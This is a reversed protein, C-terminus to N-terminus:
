LVDLLMGQTPLGNPAIVLSSVGDEIDSLIYEAGHAICTLTLCGPCLVISLSTDSLGQTKSVPLVEM